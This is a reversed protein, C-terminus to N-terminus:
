LTRIVILGIVIAGAIFATSGFAIGGTSKLVNTGVTNVTKDFPRLISQELNKINKSTDDPLTHASFNYIDKASKKIIEETKDFIDGPSPLDPLNIHPRPIFGPVSLDFM